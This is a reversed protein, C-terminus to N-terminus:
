QVSRDTNPENPFLAPQLEGTQSKSREYKKQDALTNREWFVGDTYGQISQDEEAMDLRREALCCYFEDIEIGIYHRKLKKAVVL